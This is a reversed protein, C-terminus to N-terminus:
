TSIGNLCSKEELKFWILFGNAIAFVLTVIFPLKPSVNDWMWGGLLPSVISAIGGILSLSGITQGFNQRGFHDIVYANLAPVWLSYVLGAFVASIYAFEPRWGFLLPLFAGIASWESAALFPIRGVRDLRSGLTLGTVAPIGASIAIVIGLQETSAAMEKFVYLTWFPLSVRWAFSDVAVVIMLPLLKRTPQFTWAKRHTEREVRIPHYGVVILILATAILVSSIVFTSNKIISLVTAIYGGVVPAITAAAETVGLDLSFVKGVGGETAHDGLAASTATGRIAYDLATLTIGAGLIIWFSALSYSVFGALTILGGIIIFLKRGFRDMMAGTPLRLLTAGIGGVTQAQGVFTISVGLAVILPAVSPSSFGIAFGVLADSAILLSIQQGASKFELM